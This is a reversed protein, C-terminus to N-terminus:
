PNRLGLIRLGMVNPAPYSVTTPVQETCQSINLVDSAELVAGESPCGLIIRAMKLYGKPTLIVGGWWNLIM